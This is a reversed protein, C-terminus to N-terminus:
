SRRPPPPVGAPPNRCGNAACAPEDSGARRTAGVPAVARTPSTPSSCFLPKMREIKELAAVVEAMSPRNKPDGALCSMTLQAARLAARPTYQGELHPDVLQPLRRRDALYPKAWNVLNLQPAPRATDLARLGTLMELLVVGFGYVDSKM